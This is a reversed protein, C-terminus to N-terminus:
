LKRLVSDVKEIPLQAKDKRDDLKIVTYVRKAGRSLPLRHLQAALRFLDEAKGTLITGMGNLEYRVKKQKRLHKFIAAIYPSVSTKGTGLPVVSIEMMAM